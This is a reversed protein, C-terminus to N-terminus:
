KTAAPSERRSPKQFPKDVDTARISKWHSGCWSCRRGARTVGDCKPNRTPITAIESNGLLQWNFDNRPVHVVKGNRPHRDPVTPLKVRSTARSRKHKHPQKVQDWCTAILGRPGSTGPAGFRGTPRPRADRRSALLTQFAAMPQRRRNHRFVFEDQCVQLQAQQGWPVHRDAM